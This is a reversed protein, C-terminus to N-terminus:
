AAIRPFLNQGEAEGADYCNRAKANRDNWREVAILMVEAVTLDFVHEFTSLGVTDIEPGQAGCDHCWVHASYDESFDETQPRDMAVLDRTVFDHAIVCPPGECFPCPAMKIQDTM